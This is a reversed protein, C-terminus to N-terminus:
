RLVQLAVIYSTALGFLAGLRLALHPAVARRTRLAM